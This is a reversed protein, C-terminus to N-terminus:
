FVFSSDRSEVGLYNGLYVLRDRVSFHSALHDHLTSLREVDGNIAAVAWIRRPSGLEAFKESVIFGQKTHTSYHRDCTVMRSVFIALKM